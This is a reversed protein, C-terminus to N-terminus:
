IQASTPFLTGNTGKFTDYILNIVQQLASNFRYSTRLEMGIAANNLSGFLSVHVDLELSSSSPSSFLLTTPKGLALCRGVKAFAEFSVYLQMSPSGDILVRTM